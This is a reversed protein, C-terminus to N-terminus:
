MNTSGSAQQRGETVRFFYAIRHIFYVVVVLKLSFCSIWHTLFLTSPQNHAGGSHVEYM